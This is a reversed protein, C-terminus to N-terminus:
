VLFQIRQKQFIDHEKKGGLPIYFMETRRAWLNDSSQSSLLTSINTPNIQKLMISWSLNKNLQMAHASPPMLFVVGTQHGFFPFTITSGICFSLWPAGSCPLEWIHIYLQIWTFWTLFSGESLYCSYNQQLKENNYQLLCLTNYRIHHLYM